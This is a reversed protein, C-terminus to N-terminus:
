RLPMCDPQHLSSAQVQALQAGICGHIGASFPLFRAHGSADQRVATVTRGELWREPRWQKADDGWARKSHHLSWPSVFLVLGAPLDAGCVSTRESVRRVTGTTAAGWVCRAENKCACNVTTCAARRVGHM